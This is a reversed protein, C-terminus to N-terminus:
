DTLGLERALPELDAIPDETGVAQVCVHDAGADLHARVGAAVRAVPGHPVVADLLADSGGNEFDRDEYGFDRLNRTYNVLATYRAAWTSARERAASQDDDVAVSVEPALLVDPGLRERAFATHESPVFYPHAGLSRRASLDLMRGRLAATVREEVPVPTTAADLGDFFTEMARLPQRYQSTAEPHGIGIGLLFRGPFDATIRAHAAAVDAPDHQWINLIGTVVVIRETAELFPRAQDVSPSGGLWVAGYGLGEASAAVSPDLTRRMWVGISGLEM